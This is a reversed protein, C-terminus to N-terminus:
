KCRSTPRDTFGNSRAAAWYDGAQGNPLGTGLGGSTNVSSSKFGPRRWDNRLSDDPERSEAACSRSWIM